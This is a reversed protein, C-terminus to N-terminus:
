EKAFEAMAPSLLKVLDGSKMRVSRTHLGINFEVSENGLIGHDFFVPIDSLVGSFPSVSGVECNTVRLVSDKPALFLREVGALACAKELDIRKDAPLCFLFFRRDNSELVMAKVGERLQANRVAAAQASTFVPEHSLLEFAVGSARLRSVTADVENQGM